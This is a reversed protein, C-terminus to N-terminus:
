NYRCIGVIEERTTSAMGTTVTQPNSLMHIVGCEHVAYKYNIFPRNLPRNLFVCHLIGERHM